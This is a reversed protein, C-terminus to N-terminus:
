IKIWLVKFVLTGTIASSSAMNKIRYTIVGSGDEQTSLYKNFVNAYMINNGTSWYEGVIGLPYYGEKSINFTTASTTAGGSVSIGSVSETTVTLLDRPAPTWDTQINGKEMKLQIETDITVGNDVHVGVYRIVKGEPIDFTVKQKDTSNFVATETASPTGVSVYVDKLKSVDGVFSITYRGPEFNVASLTYVAGDYEATATGNIRYTCDGLYTRTIGNSTGTARAYSELLYNRGGVFDLKTTLDNYSGSFAVPSLNEKLAYDSLKRNVFDTTPSTQNTLNEADSPFTSYITGEMGGEIKLMHKTIIVEHDSGDPGAVKIIDGVQYAPNGRYRIEYSSFSKGIWRGAWVSLGHQGTTSGDELIMPNTIKIVNGNTNGYKYGKDTEFGDITLTSENMKFGNQYIADLPIKYKEDFYETPRVQYPGWFNAAVNYGNAGALYGMLERVTCDVHPDIKTQGETGQLAFGSIVSLAHEVDGVDQTLAKENYGGLGAIEDYATVTVTMGDDNREVSDIFFHAGLGFSEREYSVNADDYIHIDGLLGDANSLDVGQPPIFRARVMSSFTGGFGIISGSEISSEYELSIVNESGVTHSRGDRTTIYLEVGVRRNVPYPNNWFGDSVRQM